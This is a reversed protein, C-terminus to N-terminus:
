RVDNAEKGALLAFLTEPTETNMIQAVRISDRILTSIAALTKIHQAHQDHRAAIMFLLRVPLGDLSEYDAVENRCLAVTMVLESVSRLRVHPIAVRMGIGTSMLQERQFIAEALEDRNKVQPAEALNNIMRNLVEAKTTEDLVLVREARVLHELSLPLPEPSKPATLRSNVWEEIESRKFRWSTGLKGCPIENRNAWDYVTRESVRLYKAVEEITMIEPGTM